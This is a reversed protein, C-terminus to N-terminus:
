GAANLLRYSVSHLSALFMRPSVPTPQRLPVITSEFGAQQGAVIDRIVAFVDANMFEYVQHFLFLRLMPQWRFHRTFNDRLPDPKDGTLEKFMSWIM